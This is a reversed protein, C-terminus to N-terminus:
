KIKRLRKIEKKLKKEVQEEQREKEKITNIQNQISDKYDTKLKKISNVYNVKAQKSMKTLIEYVEKKTITKSEKIILGNEKNAEWAYDDFTLPREIGKGIGPKDIVPIKTIIDKGCWKIDPDFGWGLTKRNGVIIFEKNKNGVLKCLKFEKEEFM